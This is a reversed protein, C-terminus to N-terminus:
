CVVDDLHDVGVDDVDDNVILLESVIVVAVVVVDLDDYVVDDVTIDILSAVVAVDGLVDVGDVEVVEDDLLNAVVVVYVDAAVVVSM